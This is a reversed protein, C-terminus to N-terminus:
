KKGEPAKGGRANKNILRRLREARAAGAAKSAARTEARRERREEATPEPPMEVREGSGPEFHHLNEYSEYDAPLGSRRLLYLFDEFM